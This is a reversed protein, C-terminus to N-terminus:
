GLLDKRDWSRRAFWLCVVVIALCAALYWADTRFEYPDGRLWLSYPSLWLLWETADSLSGVVQLLFWAALVGAVIGIGPGRRHLAAGALISGAHVALVFPLVEVVMYLLRVLAFGHVGAIAMGAVSGLAASLTWLSALICGVAWHTWLYTDRRLPLSLVLDLEGEQEAGCLRRTAQALLVGGLILPLLSTGQSELYGGPSTISQSGGFADRVSPPLSEWIEDYSPQDKIAIYAVGIVLFYLFLGVSWGFALGKQRALLIGVLSM